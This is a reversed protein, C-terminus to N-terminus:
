LREVRVGHQDACYEDLQTIIREKRDVTTPKNRVNVLDVYEVALSGALFRCLKFLVDDRSRRRESVNFHNDHLVPPHSLVFLFNYGRGVVSSIPKNHRLRRTNALALIPFVPQGTGAQTRLSWRPTVESRDDRINNYLISSSLFCNIQAEKQPLLLACAAFEVTPRALSLTIIKDSWKARCERGGHLRCRQEHM